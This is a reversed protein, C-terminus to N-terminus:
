KILFINNSMGVINQFQFANSRHNTRAFKELISSKSHADRKSPGNGERPDTRKRDFYLFQNSSIFIHHDHVRFRFAGSSFEFKRINLPHLRNLESNKCPNRVCIIYKHGIVYRTEYRAFVVDCM